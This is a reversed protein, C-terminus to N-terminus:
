FLSFIPLCGKFPTGFVCVSTADAYFILVYFMFEREGRKKYRLSVRLLGELMMSQLRKFKHKTETWAGKEM